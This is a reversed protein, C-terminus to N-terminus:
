LIGRETIELSSASRTTLLNMKPFFLQSLFLGHAPATMGALCRKKSALIAPIEQSLLKGKGVFALTGILNRAMRFLFRDGILSILLRKNPLSIIKITELNCIPNRDWLARENCFSSFDHKGILHNAAERMKDLDLPYPFHWSTFRFFPLQVAAYCIQYSYHKKICDLTPHFSDPMVEASLIAIDSPLLQNLSKRLIQLCLSTSTFFNVVQGQAHVQADTRSTAQLSVPHQLIKELAEQLISEISPGMKTKQWGKFTLGFYAIVLKINMM